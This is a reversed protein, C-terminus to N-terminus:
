AEIRTSVSGWAFFCLVGPLAGLAIRRRQPLVLHLHLSLPPLLLLGGVVLKVLEDLPRDLAGLPLAHLVLIQQASLHLHRVLLALPPTDARSHQTTRRPAYRVM